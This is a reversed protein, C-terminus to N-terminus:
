VVSKRDKGAAQEQLQFGEIRARPYHLRVHDTVSLFTQHLQQRDAINTAVGGRDSKHLFDKGAVKLVLPYELTLAAKEIEEWTGAFAGRTVPIGFADLVRLADEGLLAKEERGKHLLDAILNRDYAFCQPAPITRRRIRHYRRCYSLGQVAQDVSAFCAVSEVEEFREGTAANGMYVWMALPKRNGAEKRAERVVDFVETDPHLPSRFDPIISLVADVEDSKLLESLALRYIKRYTRGIMGLPWIDLPNRAHIWDPKGHKLKDALGVPLDAIALGFDEAADIAMIGAAGTATIVGLKPGALEGFRLLSRISVAMELNNRVRIIGARHFAADNVEDEGVLSGTHSLAARAGARSRGTKLVIIPKNLTIRSAIELFKRGRLIGEMHLVIIRTESDHGFYELLDVFDVDCANGIDVAKGWTGYAFNQSAVQILGTQAILSVPPVKAPIALDIFGTSFSRFNNLVGMTNPGVVRVGSTRALGTIRDQLERGHGDADSFGQSIIIVRRIGAGICQELARIVQDRGVSILALDAAEPVAAVAPYAKLGCIDTAKPNIPYLRGSYGYRLMTEIGNYTGPGTNRPAGILVVSEPNFFKQM